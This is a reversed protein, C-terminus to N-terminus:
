KKARHFAIIEDANPWKGTVICQYYSRDTEAHALQEYVDAFFAKSEPTMREMEAQYRKSFQCQDCDCM